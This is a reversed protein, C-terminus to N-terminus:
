QWLQRALTEDAFDRWSRCRSYPETLVDRSEDPQVFGSERVSRVAAIKVSIKGGVDLCGAVLFCSAPHPNKGKEHGRM